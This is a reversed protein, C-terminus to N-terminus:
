QRQDFIEVTPRHGAPYSPRALLGVTNESVTAIVVVLVAAAQSSEPDCGDDRAASCGVAGAESTLAPDDLAAKSM